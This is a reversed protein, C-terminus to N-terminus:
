CGCVGCYFNKACDDNSEFIIQWNAVNHSLQEISEIELIAKDNWFPYIDIEFYQNKYTLCYRTKRIQKIDRGITRMTFLVAPRSIGRKTRLLM